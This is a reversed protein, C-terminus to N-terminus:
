CYEENEMLNLMAMKRLPHHGLLVKLQHADRFSKEQGYDKMYGNGGLVQIGNSVVECAIEQLQLAATRASFSYGHSGKECEQLAKELLMEGTKCQIAMQSLIMHVESWNIIERGGQIRQKSYELAEKFAGKMVGLSIAAASPSLLESAAKYYNIGEGSKGVLRAEIDKVKLEVVPCARLGLSFLASSMQVKDERLSFLFFSYNEEGEMWAPLLAWNALNGLVMYEVEGTLYYKGKQKRVTLGKAIEEPFDFCPFAVFPLSNNAFESDSRDYSIEAGSINPLLAGEGAQLATMQALSHAFIATALSADEKALIKLAHALSALNSIDESEEQLLNFYGLEEAKKFMSIDLSTFPYNDREQKSVLLENEAFNRSMNELLKLEESFNDTM